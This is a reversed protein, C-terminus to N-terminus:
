DFMLGNNSMVPANFAAVVSQAAGVRPGTQEIQFQQRGRQYYLTDRPPRRRARRRRRRPGTNTIYGAVGGSGIRPSMITEGATINKRRPAVLQPSAALLQLSSAGGPISGQVLATGLKRNRGRRRSAFVQAVLSGDAGATDILGIGDVVANTGP